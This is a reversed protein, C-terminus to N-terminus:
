VFRPALISDLADSINDWFTRTSDPKTAALAQFEAGSIQVWATKPIPVFRGQADYNGFTLEVDVTGAPDIVIKTKRAATYTDGSTRPPDFLLAM